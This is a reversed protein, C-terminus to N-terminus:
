VRSLPAPAAARTSCAHRNKPAGLLLHKHSRTICVHMAVPQACAHMHVACKSGRPVRWRKQILQVAHQRTTATAERMAAIHVAATDASWARAHIPHTTSSRTRQQRHIAAWDITTNKTNRRAAGNHKLHTLQAAGRCKPPAALPTPAAALRKSGRLRVAELSLLAAHAADAVVHM